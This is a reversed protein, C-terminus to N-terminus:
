IFYKWFDKKFLSIVRRNYNNNRNPASKMLSQFEKSDFTKKIKELNDVDDIISYAFETLGYKGDYDIVNGISSCVGNGWIFKPIGFHGKDINSYWLNISNDSRITYVCPYKFESNETKSMHPKQHHYKSDYIINVRDCQNKAIINRFMEPNGSPIFPLNNLDLIDKKGDIFKVQTNGTTPENKCIYWDYMIQIDRFHKKSDRVNHMEMYEINKSLLINKVDDYPSSVDRWGSPHILCVYGKEVVLQFSLKVFDNWIPKTKTTGILTQYPPNGIIVDFKM